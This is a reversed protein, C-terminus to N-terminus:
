WRGRRYVSRPCSGHRRRFDGPYEVAPQQAFLGMGQARAAAEERAYPGKRDWGQRYSWAAGQRVMEQGVDLRGRWLRALLRGYRDRAVPEVRVTGSGLLTELVRGSQEGWTQCREPADMGDIRIKEVDQRRRWSRRDSGQGEMAAATSATAAPAVWVTDGDVVRVVQGQWPSMQQAQVTLSLLLGAAMGGIHRGSGGMGRGRDDDGTATSVVSDKCQM